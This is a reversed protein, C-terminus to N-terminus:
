TQTAVHWIHLACLFAATRGSREQLSYVKNASTFCTYSWINDSSLLHTRWMQHKQRKSRTCSCDWFPQEDEKSSPQIDILIWTSVNLQPRVVCCVCVSWFCKQHKARDKKKKEPWERMLVKTFFLSQSLILFSAQLRNKSASRWLRDAPRDMSPKSSERSTQIISSKM